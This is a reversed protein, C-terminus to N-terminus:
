DARPQVIELAVIQVVSGEIESIGGAYGRKSKLYGVGMYRGM